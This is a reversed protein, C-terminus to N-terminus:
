SETVQPTGTAMAAQLASLLEDHPTPKHLVTFEDPDGETTYGSILVVPLQPREARLHRALAVGDMGGPMVVDSLVVDYAPDELLIRLAAAADLAHETRAGHSRLLSATVRGLEENDDVVLIRKGALDYASAPGPEGADAV